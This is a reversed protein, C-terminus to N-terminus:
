FLSKIKAITEPRYPFIVVNILIIITWFLDVYLDFQTNWDWWYLLLDLVGYGLFIIFVLFLTDSFKACVKVIILNYIITLLDVSTEKFYYYRARPYHFSSSLFMDASQYTWTPAIKHILYPVYTLVHGLIALLICHRILTTMMMWDRRLHRLRPLIRTPAQLRLRILQLRKRRIRIPFIRRISM